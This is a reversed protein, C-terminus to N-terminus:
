PPLQPSTLTLNGDVIVKSTDIREPLYNLPSDILYTIAIAFLGAIFLYYGWNQWKYKHNAIEEYKGKISDVSQPSIIYQKVRLSLFFFISSIALLIQPAIKFTLNPLQFGVLIGFSIAILATITTIMYEARKDLTELTEKILGRGMDIWLTDSEPNASKSFGTVKNNILDYQITYVTNCLTNDRKLNNCIAFYSSSNNGAKRSSSRLRSIIVPDEFKFIFRNSCVSCPIAWRTPEEPDQLPESL